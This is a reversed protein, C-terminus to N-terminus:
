HAFYQVSQGDIYTCMVDCYHHWRWWFDWYLHRILNRVLRINRIKWIKFILLIIGNATKQFSGRLKLQFVLSNIEVDCRICDLIRPIVEYSGIKSVIEWAHNRVTSVRCQQRGLMTMMGVEFYTGRQWIILETETMVGSLPLRCIIFVACYLPRRQSYECCCALLHRVDRWISTM